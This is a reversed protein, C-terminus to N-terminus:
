IFEGLNASLGIMKYFETLDLYAKGGSFTVYFLLRGNAM